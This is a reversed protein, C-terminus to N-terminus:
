AVDDGGPVPPPVADVGPRQLIRRRAEQESMGGYKVSTGYADVYTQGSLQQIAAMVEDTVWFSGCFCCCCCFRVDSM